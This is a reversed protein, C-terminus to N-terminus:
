EPYIVEDLYLGEAPATPCLNSRRGSELLELISRKDLKGRAANLLAGVMMRVMHYLFGDASVSFRVESGERVVSFDYITRVTSEVRSKAGCVAAFDHTGVFVQATEHLAPADIYPIFQAARGYLFPDMIRGNWVRYLYRKRLASYRAHFDEPVFRCELARVDPPLKTNLAAVLRDPAIGCQSHFSICYRNAHVGADTRSCCKVDPREGTAEALSQQFQAQVTHANAQIQSGHYRTGLFRITCLYNM